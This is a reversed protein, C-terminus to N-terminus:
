DQMVISLGIEKGDRCPEHQTVARSLACLEVMVSSVTVTAARHLCSARRRHRRSPRSPRHAAHFHPLTGRVPSESVEGSPAAPSLSSQDSPQM